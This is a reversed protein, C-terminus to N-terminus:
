LNNCIDNTNTDYRYSRNSNSNCISTNDFTTDVVGVLKSTWEGGCRAKFHLKLGYMHNGEGGALNQDTAVTKLAGADVEENAFKETRWKGDETFKYEMKLARIRVLKNNQVSFDVKKCEDAQVSPVTLLISILGIISMISSLNKNMINEGNFHRQFSSGVDDFIVTIFLRRLILRTLAILIHFKIDTIQSIIGSFYDIIITVWMMFPLLESFFCFLVFCFLVFCFLLPPPSSNKLELRVGKGNSFHSSSPYNDM